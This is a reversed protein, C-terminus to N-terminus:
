PMSFYVPIVLSRTKRYHYLQPRSLSLHSSIPLIMMVCQSKLSNQKCALYGDRIHCTFDRDPTYICQDSTKGVWDPLDYQRNRM